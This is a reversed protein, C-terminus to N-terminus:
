DLNEVIKNFREVHTKGSTSMYILWLYQRHIENHSPYEIIESTQMAVKFVSNCGTKM